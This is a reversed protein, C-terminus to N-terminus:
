KYQGIRRSIERSIKTDGMLLILGWLKYDDNKHEFRGLLAIIHHVTEACVDHAEAWDEYVLPNLGNIDSFTYRQGLTESGDEM